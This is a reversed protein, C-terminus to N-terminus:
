RKEITFYLWNKEGVSWTIKTTPFRRMTDQVHKAVDAATKDTPEDDDSDYGGLSRWQGYDRVAFRFGKPTTEIDDIDGRHGRTIVNYLVDAASRLPTPVFPVYPAENLARRVDALLKRPSPM